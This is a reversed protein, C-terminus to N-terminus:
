NWLSISNNMIDGHTDSKHEQNHSYFSRCNGKTSASDEKLLFFVSPKKNKNKNKENKNKNNYLSYSRGRHLLVSICSILDLSQLINLPSFSAAVFDM